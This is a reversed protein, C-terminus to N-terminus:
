VYVEEDRGSIVLKGDEWAHRLTNLFKQTVQNCDSKRMPKHMQEEDLILGARVSSLNGLIKQRFSDPHGAILYAIDIDPMERLMNQIFRDDANVVDDVTFLRTQLEETLDPDSERLNDLIEQESSFDMKKLIEALVGRGDIAQTKVDIQANAKEHMAKDVRNIIDPAIKRVQALHVIVEKKDAANMKKIVDAAKQPKLYSLVLARIQNSEDKLLELIKEPDKEELYTFPKEEQVPALRNMLSTARDSGFAKELINYATHTGGGEAVKQKLSEFEALIALAEDPDISRISTIEPIIKETEEQSLYKLVGAAQDVGILILFKAVRRYVAEKETDTVPVKILGGSTLASSAKILEPDAKYKQSSETKPQTQKVAPQATSGAAPKSQISDDSSKKAGASYAKKLMDNYNM